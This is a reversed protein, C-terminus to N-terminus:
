AAKQDSDTKPKQLDDAMQITASTSRERRLDRIKKVHDHLQNEMDRIRDQGKANSDLSDELEERIGLLHTRLQTVEQRLLDRERRDSEACELESSLREIDRIQHTVQESKLSLDNVLVEHQLSKSKLQTELENIEATLQGNQDHATRAIELEIALEEIETQRQDLKSTKAALDDVISDHQQSRATLQAKLEAITTDRAGVEAQLAFELNEHEIAAQSLSENLQKAEALHNTIQKGLRCITAELDDRTRLLQEREQKVVKLEINCADLQQQRVSAQKLEMQMHQAQQAAQQNATSLLANDTSLCGLDNSMSLIRGELAHIEAITVVLEGQTEDCIREATLITAEREEIESRALELENQRHKLALELQPVCDAQHTLESIQVTSQLFLSELTANREHYQQITQQATELETRVANWENAQGRLEALAATELVLQARTEALDLSHIANEERIACLQTVQQQQKEVLQQLNAVKSRFAIEKTHSQALELTLAAIQAQSETNANQACNLALDSQACATTEVSLQSELDALQEQCAANFQELQFRNEREDTLQANLEHLQRERETLNSTKLELYSECQELAQRQETLSKAAAALENALEDREALVQKSLTLDTELQTLKHAHAMKQQELHDRQTRLLDIDECRAVLDQQTQQLAEHTELFSQAKTVIHQELERITDQNQELETQQNRTQARSTDLECQATELEAVGQRYQQDLRKFNTQLSQNETALTVNKEIMEQLQDIVSQSRKEENALQIEAENLSKRFQNIEEKSSQSIQELRKNKSRLTSHAQRLNTLDEEFSANQKELERVQTKRQKLLSRVKLYRTELDPDSAATKGRDRYWLLHGLLTGALLFLAASSLPMGLLQVSNGFLDTM